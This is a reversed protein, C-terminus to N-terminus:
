TTSIRVCEFVHEGFTETSKESIGHKFKPRPIPQGSQHKEDNEETGGPLPQSPTKFYVVVAYTWM